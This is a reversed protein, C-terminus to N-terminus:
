VKFGGAVIMLAGFASVVVVLPRVFSTVFGCAEVFNVAKVTGARTTVYVDAPCSGGGSLFNDVSYSASIEDTPIEGDPTDYETERCADINPYKACLDSDTNPSTTTGTGTSTPDQTPENVGEPSESVRNYPQVDVRWPDSPTPSPTIRTMPQSYTPPDTNPVPVPDGVPIYLPRPVAADDNEDNDPLVMPDEVPVPMTPVYVPIQEPPILPAVKEVFAEEDLEVESVSPTESCGTPTVYWGATCSPTTPQYLTNTVYRWYVLRYRWGLSDNVLLCSEMYGPSTVSAMYAACWSSATYYTQGNYVTQRGDTVPYSVPNPDSFLFTGDEYTIYESALFAVATVGLGIPNMFMFRAAVAPAGTTVRALIPIAQRKTGLNLSATARVFARSSESARRIVTDAGMKVAYAGPGGQVASPPTVSSYAANATLSLGGLAAALLWRGYVNRNPVAHHNV